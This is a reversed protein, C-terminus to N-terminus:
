SIDKLWYFRVDDYNVYDKFRSILCHMDEENLLNSVVGHFITNPFLYTHRLKQHTSGETHVLKLLSKLALWRVEPQSHCLLQLLRENCALYNQKMWQRFKHTADDTSVPVHASKVSLKTGAPILWGYYKSILHCCVRCLANIAAKLIM